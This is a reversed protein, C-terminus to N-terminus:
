KITITIRKTTTKPKPVKKTPPPTIKVTLRCIGAALGKVKNGAVVSCVSKTSSTTVLKSKAVVAIGLTKLQALVTATKKVGVTAVKPANVTPAGVTPAPQGAPAGAAPAGGASPATISGNKVAAKFAGGGAGVSLKMGATASARVTFVKVSAVDVKDNAAPPLEMDPVSGTNRGNTSNNVENIQDTKPTVAASPSTATGAAVDSGKLGLDTFTTEISKVDGNGSAVAVTVDGTTADAQVAIATPANGQGGQPPNPQNAPAAETKLQFFKAGGDISLYAGDAGAVAIVGTDCDIKMDNYTGTTTGTAAHAPSSSVASIKYLGKGNVSVFATDAVKTASGTPCYQVAKVGATYTGNGSVSSAGAAAAESGFYKINSLTTAGTSTNTAVSVLAVSGASSECGTPGVNGSCKNVAVLMMDKGAIGEIAVLLQQGGASVFSTPTLASGSPNAAGNFVFEKRDSQLKADRDAASAALEEGMQTAGTGTATTFGKVHLFENPNNTFGAAIYQNDGAGNWWDVAYSGGAGITSFSTGGDTSLLTRSGGTGTMSLVLKSGDTSNPDYAIDTVNPATMGNVAIGGSTKEIGAAAQFNTFQNAQTNGASGFQPRYKTLATLDASKRLGFQGDGTIAVLNDNFNFGADWAFGTNNNAGGMPLLAVKDATVAQSGLSNSGSSNFLFECQGITGVVEMGDLIEGSGPKDNAISAVLPTGGNQGCQGSLSAINNWPTMQDASNVGELGSSMNWSSGDNYGVTFSVTAGDVHHTMFAAPTAGGQTTLKVLGVGTTPMTHSVSSTSSVSIDPAGAGGLALQSIKSGTNNVSLMYMNGTSGVAFAVHDGAAFGSSLTTKVSQFNPLGTDAKSDPIVAAFLDNDTRVLIMSSQGQDGGHVWFHKKNQGIVQSYSTIKTWTSGYNRSFYLDNGVQVAVEGKAASTFIEGASQSQTMGGAASASAETDEASTPVPSWSGAYDTTRWVSPQADSTAYFVGSDADAAVTRIQGGFANSFSLKSKTSATLKVSTATPKADVVKTGFGPAAVVYGAADDDKVTVKGTANAIGSDIADGDANLVAVMARPIANGDADTITLEVNAAHAVEPVAFLGIVAVSAVAAISRTFRRFM